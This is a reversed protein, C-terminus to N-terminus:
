ATCPFTEVEKLLQSKGCGPGGPILLGRLNKISELAATWENDGERLKVPEPVCVPPLAVPKKSLLRHTLKLLHAQLKDGDLNIIRFPCEDTLKDLNPRRFPTGEQITKFTQSELLKKLEKAKKHSTSVLWCDTRCQRIAKQPVVTCILDRAQALRLYEIAMIQVYIPRCSDLSLLEKATIYDWCEDDGVKFPIMHKNASPIDENLRGTTRCTYSFTQDRCILSGIACNISAKAM